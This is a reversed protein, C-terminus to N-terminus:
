RWLDLLSTRWHTLWDTLSDTLSTPISSSPCSFIFCNWRSPPPTGQSDRGQGLYLCKTFNENLYIVKWDSKLRTTFVHHNHHHPGVSCDLSFSMISLWHPFDSLISLSESSIIVRVVDNHNCIQRINNHCYLDSLISLSESSIIVSWM